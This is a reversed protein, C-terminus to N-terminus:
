AGKGPGFRQPPQPLPRGREAMSHFIAARITRGHNPGIMWALLVREGPLERFRHEVVNNPSEEVLSIM